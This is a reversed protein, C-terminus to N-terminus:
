ALPHEPRPVPLVPRPLHHDPAPLRANPPHLPRPSHRPPDASGAHWDARPPPGARVRRADVIEDGAGASGARAVTRPRLLTVVAALRNYFALCLLGCASIAIIPGVGASIVKSWDNM